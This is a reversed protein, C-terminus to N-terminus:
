GTKPLQVSATDTRTGDFAQQRMSDDRGNDNLANDRPRPAGLISEGEAHADQSEGEGGDQDEQHDAAAEPDHDVQM